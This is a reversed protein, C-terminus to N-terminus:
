APGEQAQQAERSQRGQEVLMAILEPRGARVLAERRILESCLSGMGKCSAAMARLLAAADRDLTLCHAIGRREARIENVM